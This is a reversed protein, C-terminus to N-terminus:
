IAIKFMNEGSESSHIPGLWVKISFNNKLFILSQFVNVWKMGSIEQYGRFVDTFM